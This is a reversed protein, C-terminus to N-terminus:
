PAGKSIEAITVFPINHGIFRSLHSTAPQALKDIVQSALIDGLQGNSCSLDLLLVMLRATRKDRLGSWPM